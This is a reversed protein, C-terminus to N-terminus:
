PRIRGLKEAEEKNFKLWRKFQPNRMYTNLKDSVWRRVLESQKLQEYKCIIDLLIRMDNSIKVNMQEIYKSM